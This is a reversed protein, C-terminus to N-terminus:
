KKEAIVQIVHSLGNHKKGEHRTVEGYFFHIHRENKFFSLMDEPSYLLQENPPGGTGYALQEKSYVEVMILGGAKVSNIINEMFFPQDVAPVHGFVVVAGDYEATPVKENTLDVAATEITVKNKIALQEAKKLGVKSQDYATVDHGQKALYVANRGEGEAFCAIAEGEGFLHSSARIFENAEEGYVYAEESFSKDWHAKSM